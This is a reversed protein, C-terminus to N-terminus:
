FGKKKKHFKKGGPRRNIPMMSPIAIGKGKLWELAVPHLDRLASRILIAKNMEVEALEDSLGLCHSLKGSQAPHAAVHAKFAKVDRLQLVHNLRRHFGAYGKEIDREDM